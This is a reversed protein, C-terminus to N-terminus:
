EGKIEFIHNCIQCIRFNGSPITKFLVGASEGNPFTHDCNKKINKLDLKSKLTKNRSANDKLQLLRKMYEDTM